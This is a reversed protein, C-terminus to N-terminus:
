SRTEPDCAPFFRLHSNVCISKCARYNTLAKDIIRGSLRYEQELRRAYEHGMEELRTETAHQISQILNGVQVKYGRGVVAQQMADMEGGAQLAPHRSLAQELLTSGSRPMGVVFVPAVDTFAKHPSTTLREESFVTEILEHLNSQELEDYHIGQRRIRNGESWLAFAEEYHGAKDAETGLIFAAASREHSELPSRDYRDRLTQIDKLRTEPEGGIDLLIGLASVHDPDFRLARRLYEEAAPMDGKQALCVGISHLLDADNPTLDHANLLLNLSTDIDGFGNHISALKKLLKIHRPDRQLAHMLVAIAERFEGLAALSAGLGFAAETLRPSLSLARRFLPAADEERGLVVLCSAYNAMFDVRKPSALHARGFWDSATTFDQQMGAVLGRAYMIDPYDPSQSDAQECARLASSFDGQAALAMAQDALATLRRKKNNSLKKVM